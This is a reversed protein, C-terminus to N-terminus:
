TKRVGGKQIPLSPFKESIPELRWDKFKMRTAKFFIDELMVEAIMEKDNALLDPIRCVQSVIANGPTM